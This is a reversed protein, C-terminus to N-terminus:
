NLILLYDIARTVGVYMVRREEDDKRYKPYMIPFNGYLIVNKNELGKSAHVTLVKVTDEEMKNKLDQLSMGDRKFTTYPIKHLECLSCIEFLEKNSRTLIFWDKYSKNNIIKPIGISSFMNKKYVCVQGKNPNIPKINKIIRSPVQSIIKDAMELISISNRYNNSLTYVKYKNNRVLSKFINVNSGKFGYIAQYDDGIYFTHEADLSRIFNWELNGIDQFEDVLLHNIRTNLSRFYEDAKILLEDFTIVNDRICLTEISELYITGGKERYTKVDKASRHLCKYEIYEGMDWFSNFEQESVQGAEYKAQLKRFEGYRQTTLQKCYKDILYIHYQIDLEDTYLKYIEGSSKLVHNAFSHITGIFTDGIGQVECLRERMEEAAMNTFTIAVISNPEIGNNLLFKIRETLCRTKGSGAGAVVIINDADSEVVQKQLNDLM